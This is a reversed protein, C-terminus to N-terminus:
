CRLSRLRVVDDCANFLLVQFGREKWVNRNLETGSANKGPTQGGQSVSTWEAVTRISLATGNFKNAINV